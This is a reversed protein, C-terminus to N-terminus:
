DTRYRYTLISMVYFIIESMSRATVRARSAVLADVPALFAAAAGAAAATTKMFDRRNSNQKAM